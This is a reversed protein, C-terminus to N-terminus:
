DNPLDCGIELAFTYLYRDVHRKTIMPMKKAQTRCLVRDGIRKAVKKQSLITKSLPENSLKLLEEM